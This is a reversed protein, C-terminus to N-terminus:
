EHMWDGWRLNIDSDLLHRLNVGPVQQKKEGRKGGKKGRERERRNEWGGKKGGGLKRKREEKRRRKRRRKERKGKGEERRGEDRGEGEVQKGWIGKGRGGKKRMNFSTSPGFKPGEFANQAMKATSPGLEPGEVANTSPFFSPILSSTIIGHFVSFKLISLLIVCRKKYVM